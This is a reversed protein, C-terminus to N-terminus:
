CYDDTNFQHEDDFDFDEDFLGIHVYEELEEDYYWEATYHEDTDNNANSDIIFESVANHPIPM